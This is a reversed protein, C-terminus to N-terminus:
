FWSLRKLFDVVSLVNLFFVHSRSGSVKISIGHKKVCHSALLDRTKFRSDCCLCRFPRDSSHTAEHNLLLKRRLFRRSCIHCAYPYDEESLHNKMHARLHQKCSFEKHCTECSYNSGSTHKKEVHDKLSSLNKFITPCSGCTYLNKSHVQNVHRNLEKTTIYSQTCETCMLREPLLDSHLYEVHGQGTPSNGMNGIAPFLLSNLLRLRTFIPTFSFLSHVDVIGGSGGGWFFFEIRRLLQCFLCLCGLFKNLAFCNQVM